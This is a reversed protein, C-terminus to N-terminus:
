TGECSTWSDGFGWRAETIPTIDEGLVPTVIDRMFLVTGVLGGCGNYGPDRHAATAALVARIAEPGYETELHDWFCMATYYYYIRPLDPDWVTLDLFPVEGVAGEDIVWGYWSGERCEVAPPRGSGSRADAEGYTALGENLWSPMPTSGLVLHTLEHGNNCQGQLLWPWWTDVDAASWEADSGLSYMEVYPATYGGSYDDAAVLRHAIPTPGTLGTWAEVRPTCLADDALFFSLIEGYAAPGIALYRGNAKMIEGADPVPHYRVEGVCNRHNSGGAICARYRELQGAPATMDLSAIDLVAVAPAAEGTEVSRTSVTVDYSGPATIGYVDLGAAPDFFQGCEGPGLPEGAVTVQTRGVSIDAEPADVPRDGPNCVTAEVTSTGAVGDYRVMVQLVTLSVPASTTVTSAPSPATATTSSAATSIPAATTAISATTEAADGALVSGGGCAAVVLSLVM